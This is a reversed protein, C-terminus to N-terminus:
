FIRITNCFENITDPYLLNKLILMKFMKSVSNCLVSSLCFFLVYM